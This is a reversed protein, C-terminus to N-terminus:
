EFQTLAVILNSPSWKGLLLTAKQSSDSSFEDLQNLTTYTASLVPPPEGEHIIHALFKSNVIQVGWELAM